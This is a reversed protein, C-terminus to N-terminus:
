KIWGKLICYYRVVLQDPTLGSRRSADILRRVYENESIDAHHLRATVHFGCTSTGEDQLCVNNYIVDKDKLLQKLRNQKEGLEARRTASMGKLHSDTPEGYSDFFNYLMKRGNRRRWLCTWHGSTASQLLYLIICKDTHQFIDDINDVSNLDTYIILDTGPNVAEMEDGSLPYHLLKKMMSM